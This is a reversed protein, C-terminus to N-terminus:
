IKYFNSKEWINVLYKRVRAGATERGGQRGIEAKGGMERENSRGGEISGVRRWGNWEWRVLATAAM